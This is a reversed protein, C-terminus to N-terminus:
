FNLFATILMAVSLLTAGLGHSHKSAYSEESPTAPTQQLTSSGTTAPSPNPKSTSDLVLSTSDVVSIGSSGKTIVQGHITADSGGISLTQDALLVAASQGAITSVSYLTGDITLIDGADETSMDMGRSATMSSAIVVVSDSAVSIVTGSM